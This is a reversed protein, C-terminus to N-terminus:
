LVEHLSRKALIGNKKDLGDLYEDTVPSMSAYMLDITEKQKEYDSFNKIAENM